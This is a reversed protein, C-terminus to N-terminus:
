KEKHLLIEKFDKSHRNKDIIFSLGDYEEGVGHNEKLTGYEGGM